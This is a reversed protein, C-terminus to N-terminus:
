LVWQEVTQAIAERPWLGVYRPFDRVPKFDAVYTLPKPLSVPARELDLLRFGIGDLDLNCHHLQARHTTLLAYPINSRAFNQLAAHIDAFPLHFLCDRCHWLDASPFTDRTIDFVHLTLDPHQSQLTTILSPSIDGGEYHLATQKLLEPMWRLDGCPADFLSTFHHKQILAALGSRYCETAKIESGVGSRSEGSGWFNNTYISDFAATREASVDYHFARPFPNIGFPHLARNAIRRLILPLPHDTDSYTM